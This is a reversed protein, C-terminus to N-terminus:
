KLDNGGSKFEGSVPNLVLAGTGPEIGAVRAFNTWRIRAVDVFERALEM